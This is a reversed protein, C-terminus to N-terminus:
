NISFSKFVFFPPPVPRAPKKNRYDVKASAEDEGKRARWERRIKRKM